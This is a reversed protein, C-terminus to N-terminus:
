RRRRRSALLSSIRLLWPGCHKVVTAALSDQTERFIRGISSWLRTGNSALREGGGRHRRDNFTLAPRGRPQEHWQLPWFSRTVSCRARSRHVRIVRPLGEEGLSRFRVLRLPGTRRVVSDIWGLKGGP